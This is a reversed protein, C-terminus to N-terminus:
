TQFEFVGGETQPTFAKVWQAAAEVLNFHSHNFPHERILVCNTKKLLNVLFIIFINELLFYAYLIHIANKNKEDWIVKKIQILSSM